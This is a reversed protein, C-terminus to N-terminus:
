SVLSPFIYPEVHAHVRQGHNVTWFGCEDQKVIANGHTYVLIWSCRMVVLQLGGYSVVIIEKLVGIYHMNAV